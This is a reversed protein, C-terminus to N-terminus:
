RRCDPDDVVLTVNLLSRLGAALAPDSLEYRVRRGQPEAAVLGCERLCTLHNSTNAKSLNLTQALETPYSPGDLLTLLIRCRNDDALARGIRSLTDLSHDVTPSAMHIVM